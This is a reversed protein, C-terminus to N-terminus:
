FCKCIREWFVTAYLEKMPEHLMEKTSLTSLFSNLINELKSDEEDDNNGNSNSNTDTGNEDISLLEELLKEINEDNLSSSFDDHNINSEKRLTEAARQEIFSKITSDEAQENNLNLSNCFKDVAELNSNESNLFKNLFENTFNDLNEDERFQKELSSADNLHTPENRNSQQLSKSTDFSKLADNLVDEIEAEDENSNMALVLTLTM